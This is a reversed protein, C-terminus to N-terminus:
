NLIIQEQKADYDSVIHVRYTGAATASPFTLQHSVIEGVSQVSMSPIPQGLSNTVLISYNQITGFEIDVTIATNGSSIGLPNPYIGYVEIGNFATSDDFVPAQDGFYVPSTFSFECLGLYGILEVDYWGGVPMSLIAFSDSLYTVDASPPLNWAVSDLGTFTTLNVLIVTDGEENYTSVAFDMTVSLATGDLLATTDYVCGLSDSVFVDHTGFALGSFNTSDTWAIGDLSYQFNGAGGTVNTIQLSGDSCGIFASVSINAPETILIQTSDTGSCGSPTSVTVILLSDMGGTASETPNIAGTSWVYSPIEGNGIVMPAISVVQEPCILTDQPMDLWLELSASVSVTDYNLCGNLTSQVEYIYDGITSATITDSFTQTNSGDLWGETVNTSGNIPHTLLIEDQSCNITQDALHDVYPLNFDCIIL